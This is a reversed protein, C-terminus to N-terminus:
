QGSLVDIFPQIDMFNVEGSQDCDAEAQFEENALVAIFPAIDEFTTVGDQNVDGLIVPEVFTVTLTGEPCFFDSTDSVDLNLDFSFLEGSAFVGSLTVNRDTITVAQGALFAELDPGTLFDALEVGDIQFERGFLNVESDSNAGFNEGFSGGSINAV